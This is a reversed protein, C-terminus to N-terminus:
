SARADAGGRGVGVAPHPAQSRHPLLRRPRGRVGPGRQGPHPRGQPRRQQDLRRVGGADAPGTPRCPDGHGAPRRRGSGPRLQVLGRRPGRRQAGPRGATRDGGPRCRGLGAAVRPGATRRRLRDGARLRLRRAAVGRVGRGRATGLTRHPFDWLPREGETPKYVCEVPGADAAFEALFTANSAQLLRGTIALEGEGLPATLAPHTLDADLPLAPRRYGNARPCIHGSPDLPQLCFPCPPRGGAVLAQARAVFDRAYSATIKVM